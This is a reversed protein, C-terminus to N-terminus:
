ANGGDFIYSDTKMLIDAGDSLATHATDAINTAFDAEFRASTYYMNTGEAVDSTTLTVAGTKGNVSLVADTPTLLEVWNDAETAPTAKLIFSKNLDSRVAVDGIQANLALMAAEDAVEFVETIAIAPLVGSDLKGDAGLVPIEGEATGVDKAAATGADTVKSLTIDPVDAATLNEGTTVIGKADVAVKTYTGADVGSDALTIPLEVDATGDFNVNGTAAGSVSIKRATTLKAASDATIAKDVYGQDAKANTAFSAKTMDGAGLAELQDPTVIQKWVANDPTNDLLVYAKKAAPDVWITGLDYDSDDSSPPTPTEGEGPTPPLVAGTASAYELDNWATTGDGFKFKRTDLEIGMEGKALVPNVTEWNAATDNRLLFKANLTIDAM